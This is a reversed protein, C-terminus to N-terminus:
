NNSKVKSRKSLIKDLRQQDIKILPFDSPSYSQEPSSPREAALKRLEEMVREALKEITERRHANESYNWVLRLKGGAVSGNLEILYRRNGKQSRTEGVSERAVRFRSSESIVGDLQGLYNFSIEAEPLGGLRERLEEDEALYRLMGYHIGRASTERVQEKVKRLLGVGGEGEVELWMPYRSTFCGVTRTLDVDKAIEERGHGEMEVLATGCGAWESIARAVASLLVENIQTKFAVAVEQLLRGTEEESLSATVYEGSAVTNAGMKDVPLRGPSKGERALWYGAEERLRESRAEERLREAWRKYSTTKAGLRIEEGRSAQDYGRELDGLLIRWGVGDIVLHHVIILVRQRRGKGCKFVVVRMLPGEGLNTGKQYEGAAEEIARSESGEEVWSLDVEELAVSGNPEVCVQKWGNEAREFRHRLADHHSLLRAFVARLAEV